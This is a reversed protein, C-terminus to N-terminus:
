AVQQWLIDFERSFLREGDRAFIEVLLSIRRAAPDATASTAVRAAVGDRVMWALARAAEAEAALATAADAVGTEIVTWLWSGLPETGAPSLGDGWWGRRDRETPRWGDPARADTFLSIVVATALAQRAALGGADARGDLPAVAWDFGLEGGATDLVTDWLLVQPAAAEHDRFSVTWGTM